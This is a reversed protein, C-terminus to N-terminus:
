SIIQIWLYLIVILDLHSSKKLLGLTRKIVWEHLWCGQNWGWEIWKVDWNYQESCERPGGWKRRIEWGEEKEFETSIIISTTIALWVRNHGQEKRECNKDKIRIGM